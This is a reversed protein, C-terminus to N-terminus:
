QQGTQQTQELERKVKEQNGGTTSVGRCDSKLGVGSWDRKGEFRTGKQRVSAFSRKQRVKHNESEQFRGVKVLFSTRVGSIEGPVLVLGQLDMGM